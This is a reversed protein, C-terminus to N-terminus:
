VKGNKLKSFYGASIGLYSAIDKDMLKHYHNPYREKFEQYRIKALKKIVFNIERNEKMMFLWESSVRGLREGAKLSQYGENLLNHSIQLVLTPELAEITLRSPQRTLFSFYSSVFENEFAFQYCIQNGKANIVYGKWSGFITFSVYNEVQGELCLYDGKGFVAVKLRDKYFSWDALTFQAIAQCFLFMQKKYKALDNPNPYPPKKVTKPM